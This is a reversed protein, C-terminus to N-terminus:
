SIKHDFSPFKLIAAVNFTKPWVEATFTEILIIKTDLYINNLDLFWILGMDFLMLGMEHDFFPFNLIAAM